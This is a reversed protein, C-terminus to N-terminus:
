CYDGLMTLAFRVDALFYSDAFFFTYFFVIFIKSAANVDDKISTPQVGRMLTAAGLFGIVILIFTLILCLIMM